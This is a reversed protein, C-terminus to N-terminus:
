LDPCNPNHLVLVVALTDLIKIIVGINDVLYVQSNQCPATRLRWMGDIEMRYAVFTARSGSKNRWPTRFRLPSALSDASLGGLM